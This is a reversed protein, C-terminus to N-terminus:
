ILSLKLLDILCIECVMVLITIWIGVLYGWSKVKDWVLNVLYWYFVEHIFILMFFLASTM